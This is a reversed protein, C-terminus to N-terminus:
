FDCKLRAEWTLPIPSTGTWSADFTTNTPNTVSVPSTVGAGNVTVTIVSGNFVPAAALGHTIASGTTAAAIYGSTKSLYGTNNKVCNTGFNGGQGTSTPQIANNGTLSFINGSWLGEQRGIHNIDYVLSSLFRNDLYRSAQGNAYIGTNCGSITSNLVDTNSNSANSSDYVGIDYNSIVTESISIGSANGSVKVAMSGATRLDARDITLGNLRINSASGEVLVGFLGTANTGAFYVRGSTVGQANVIRAGANTFGEFRCDRISWNTANTSFDIAILSGDSLLKRGRFDTSDIYFACTATTTTNAYCDDLENAYSGPPPGNGVVFSIGKINFCKCRRLVVDMTNIVFGNGATNAAVNGEICINTVTQPGTVAKNFLMADNAHSKIIVAGYNQSTGSRAGEALGFLDVKYPVVITNTTLYAGSPFVVTAGYTLSAAYDIAAQIESTDDAVGNGVAGFDLVNVSAGTIMSYSVKTLSM